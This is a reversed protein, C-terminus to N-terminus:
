RQTAPFFLAQEMGTGTNGMGLSPHFGFCITIVFWSHNWALAKPILNLSPLWGNQPWPCGPNRQLAKVQQLLTQDCVTGIASSMVISLFVQCLQTSGSFVCIALVFIVEQYTM